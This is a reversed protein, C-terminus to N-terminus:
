EDELIDGYNAEIYDYFGQDGFELEYQELYHLLAEKQNTSTKGLIIAIEMPISSEKVEATNLKTTNFTDGVIAIYYANSSSDFYAYQELFEEGSNITSQPTLFKIGSIGEAEKCYSEVSSSFLRERLASPLDNVGNSKIVLEKDEVIDLQELEREKLTKGWSPLYAYSGTYQATLDADYNRDTESLLNGSADVVKALDEEITDQRTVINTNTKLFAEENAELTVGKYIRALSDLDFNTFTGEKVANVYANILVPVSDNHNSINELKIYEIERAYARGLSSYENELLYLSTLLEKYVDPYISKEIYDTYDVTFINEYESDPTIVCTHSTNASINYLSSRLEIVLKIEKFEKDVAYTDSKAKAIMTDTVRKTIIEELAEADAKNAEPYATAQGGALKTTVNKFVVDTDFGYKKTLQDKAIATTLETIITNNSTGSDVLKDYIVEFNNFYNDNVNTVLKDDDLVKNPQAVIDDCALLAISCLSLALIKTFKNM